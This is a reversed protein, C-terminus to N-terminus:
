QRMQLESASRWRSRLACGQIASGLSVASSTSHGTRKSDKMFRMALSKGRTSAKAASGFQILVPPSGGSSSSAKRIPRREVAFLAKPANVEAGALPRSRSVTPGPELGVSGAFSGARSGSPLLRYYVPRPISHNWCMGGVTLELVPISKQEGDSIHISKVTLSQFGMSFLKLTYEDAPLASFRYVGSAGAHTRFAREPSTESRLEVEARSVGGGTIDRVTGTLTSIGDQSPSPLVRLCTGIAIAWLVRM